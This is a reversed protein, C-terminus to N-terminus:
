PSTTPTFNNIKTWNRTQGFFPLNIIKVHNKAKDPKKKKRHGKKKKKKWATPQRDQMRSVNQKKRKM